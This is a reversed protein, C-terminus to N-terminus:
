QSWSQTFGRIVPKAVGVGTNLASVGPLDELSEGLSNASIQDQLTASRNQVTLSSKQRSRRSFSEEVVVESLEIFSPLLTLTLQNEEPFLLDFDRAKFGEKEVHLHYHGPALNAFAVKGSASTTDLLGERPLSVLVGQLPAQSQGSFVQISLQTQAFLGTNGLILVLLWAKLRHQM